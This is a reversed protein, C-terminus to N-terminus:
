KPLNGLLLKKFGLSVRAKPNPSFLVLTLTSAKGPDRAPSRQASGRLTAARLWYEGVGLFFRPGPRPESLLMHRAHILGPESGQVM